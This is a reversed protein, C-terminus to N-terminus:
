SRSTTLGSLRRGVAKRRRRSRRSRPRASSTSPWSRSSSRWTWRGCRSGRRSSWRWRRSTSSRGSVRGSWRTPSRRRGRARPHLDRRDARRARRRGAPLDEVPPDHARGVEEGVKAPDDDVLATPRFGREAFGRYNALAHGLNGIGAIVIPWHQTLGLERRIQHVPLRRRLRRRAHRVLGPAVPGQAGEGLERGHAEALAESSVTPAGPSPSARGPRPPLRPATRRDGRPDLARQWAPGCPYHMRSDRNVFASLTRVAEALRGRTSARDRVARARRRARGPDPDRVRARARRGGVRRGRPLEFPTRAREALIVERAEDCLGCGPRAYM